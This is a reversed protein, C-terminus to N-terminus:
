TNKLYINRSAHLDRDIVLGCKPCIFVEKSGLLFNIYGDVGCTKSTYSEDVIKVICGLVRAKYLLRTQFTFHNLGVMNKVTTKNIKRGKRKIMNKVQFKPLLITDFNMCLYKIFKWHLDTVQNKVKTRLKQIKNKLKNKLDTLKNLNDIQCKIKYMKDTPNVKGCIGEPSYFTQFTRVGPDLAVTKGTQQLNKYSKSDIIKPLLIFYKGDDCQIRFDSSKNGSSCFYSKLTKRSDSKLMESQLKPFLILKKNIAKDDLHFTQSKDRKSRYGLSFHKINKAKLNAFASKANAVFEKVSLQRTDYPIDSLWKHNKDLKSNSTLVVSRMDYFNARKGNRFEDICKNYLYRSAGFCKSFIQKQNTTPYIRIKLM